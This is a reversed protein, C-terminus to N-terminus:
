IKLVIELDCARVRQKKLYTNLLYRNQTMNRNFIQALLLFYRESIYYYMIPEPFKVFCSEPKFINISTNEDFTLLFM